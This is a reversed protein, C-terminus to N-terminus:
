KIHTHTQSQDLQRKKRGRWFLNIVHRQRLLRRGSLAFGYQLQKRPVLHHDQGRAGSGSEELDRELADPSHAVHVCVVSVEHPELRAVTFVMFRALEVEKNDAGAERRGM